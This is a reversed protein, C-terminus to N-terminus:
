NNDNNIDVFKIVACCFIRDSCICPYQLLQDVVAPDIKYVILCKEVVSVVNEFYVQENEKQDNNDNKEDRDDYEQNEKEENENNDHIDDGSKEDDDQNLQAQYHDMLIKIFETQNEKVAYELPTVIAADDVNIHVNPRDQQDNIIPTKSNVYPLNLLFKMAELNNTRIAHILVFEDDITRNPDFQEKHDYYIHNCINRTIEVDNSINQHFLIETWLQQWNTASGYHIMQNVGEWNDADILKQLNRSTSFKKLITNGANGPQPNQKLEHLIKLKLVFWLLLNIGFSFATIICLVLNIINYNKGFRFFAVFEISIIISSELMRVVDLHYPFLSKLIWHLLEYNNMSVSVIILIGMEFGIIIALIYGDFIIWILSLTLLRTAIDFSRFIIFDLKPVNITMMMDDTANRLIVTFLSWFISLHYISFWTAIIGTRAAFVLQLVFQPASEFTAELVMIWTQAVNPKTANTKYNIYLARLLELDLLQLFVRSVSYTRLGIQISSILRYVIIVAISWYFFSSMSLDGCFATHSSQYLIYFQIVVAVDTCQDFIHPLAHLYCERKTWIDDKWLNMKQYFKKNEWNNKNDRKKVDFFAKVSVLFFISLYVALYSITVYTPIISSVECKESTHDNGM